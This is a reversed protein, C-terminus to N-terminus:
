QHLEGREVARDVEADGLAGARERGALACVENENAGAVDVDGRQAIRVLRQDGEGLRAVDVRDDDVAADQAAAAFEGREIVGFHQPFRVFGGGRQARARVPG